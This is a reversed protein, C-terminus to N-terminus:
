VLRIEGTLLVQMMGQKVARAKALKDELAAIEADMDSLVAAIARQEDLPPVPVELLGILTLNLGGRGGDGSSIERLEEYRASLNHYLYESVYSPSPLIAAISQNTTLPIRNIAVTGRTKGQGALGILVCNEPILKASSNQLGWKTIRGAVDWVQRLHLEGSSMWPIDGGWFGSVNTSPTGGSACSTVDRIRQVTWEGQFGPLRRQGALLEQMAGQKIDRKKAILAELADVLADADGLAEAIARQEPLPPLPLRLAALRNAGLHAISTTQLAISSFIGSYLFTQFVRQCYEPHISNRARFRVLTNQFCCNEPQGRYIASRGVLELSQGENLLIDGERLLFRLKESATFPMQLVDSLDIYGDFVNAVRLYPTMEGSRGPSRQRGGDVQGVEDIRPTGWEEPIVGIETQKYGRRMTSM